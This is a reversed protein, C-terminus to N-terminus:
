TWPRTWARGHGIRLGAVRAAFHLAATEHRGFEERARVAHLTEYVKGRGIVPVSM